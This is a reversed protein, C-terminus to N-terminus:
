TLCPPTDRGTQWGLICSAELSIDSTMRDEGAEKCCAGSGYGRIRLEPDMSSSHPDGGHLAKVTGPVSGLGWM